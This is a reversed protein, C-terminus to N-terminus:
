KVTFKEALRIATERDLVFNGLHWRNKDALIEIKVGFKEQLSKIAEQETM